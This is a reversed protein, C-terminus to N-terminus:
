ASPGGCINLYICQWGPPIIIIPLPGPVRVPINPLWPTRPSAPTPPEAPVNRWPSNWKDWPNYDWHADPHYKDPGHWRWEGGDPDFWRFSTPDRSGPRWEWNDNWNPPIPTVGDESVTVTGQPSPKPKNTAETKLNEQGKAVMANYRGIESLVSYQNYLGLLGSIGSGFSSLAYDLITTIGMSSRWWSDLNDHPFLGLGGLEAFIGWDVMGDPDMRNVPNNRVYAYRNWSQPDSIRASAM